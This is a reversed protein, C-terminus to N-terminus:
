GAPIVARLRHNLLAVGGSVVGWLIAGRCPHRGTVPPQAVRCWRFTLLGTPGEEKCRGAAFAARFVLGSAADRAAKPLGSARHGDRNVGLERIRGAAQKPHKNTGIEGTRRGDAQYTAAWTTGALGSSM